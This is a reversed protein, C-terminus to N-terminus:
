NVKRYPPFYGNQPPSSEALRNTTAPDNVICLLHVPLFTNAWKTKFAALGNSGAMPMGGTLLRLRHDRVYEQLGHMMLYSANWKLGHETTVLHLIQLLDDIIVGCAMAGIGEDDRVQFFAANPLRAIAEFHSSPMDFLGGSFGRRDKLVQYLPIIKLKEPLSSLVSFHGRKDADVVRRQSRRSLPRYPKAPDFMYHQKLLRIETKTTKTYPPVWGPHTVVSLTLLHRFGTTLTELVSEDTIWRYPWPGVGDFFDTGPIKRKLVSVQQEAHTDVTGINSLGALYDPDSFPCLM